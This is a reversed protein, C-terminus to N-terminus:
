YNKAQNLAKKAVTGDYHFRPLYAEKWEEPWMSLPTPVDFIVLSGLLSVANPESSPLVQDLAERPLREYPWSPPNESGQRHDKSWLDPLPISFGELANIVDKADTLDFDPKKICEAVHALALPIGGLLTSIRELDGDEAEHSKLSKELFKKSADTSIPLLSLSIFQKSVDPPISLDKNRTTVLVSGQSLTPWYVEAMAEFSKPDDYVLLWGDHTALWEKALNGLEKGHMRPEVNLRLIRAVEDLSGKLKVPTEANLWFVPGGWRSAIELAFQTKGVGLMGHIVCVRVDCDSTNKIPKLHHEVGDIENNRLYYEARRDLPLMKAFPWGNHEQTMYWNSPGQFAVITQIDCRLAHDRQHKAYSVERKVIKFCETLDDMVKEMDRSKKGGWFFGRFFNASASRELFNAARICTDLYAMYMSILAEDLRPYRGYQIVGWTISLGLSNKTLTNLGDTYAKLGEVVPKIANMFKSTGKKEYKEKLYNIYIKCTDATLEKELRQRNQDSIPTGHEEQLKKLWEWQSTPITAPSNADQEGSVNERPLRTEHVSTTSSRSPREM